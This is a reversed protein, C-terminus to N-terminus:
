ITLFHSELHLGNSSGTAPSSPPSFPLAPSFPALRRSIRRVSDFAVSWVASKPLPCHNTAPNM